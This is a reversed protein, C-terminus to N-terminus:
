FNSDNKRGFEREKDFMTLLESEIVSLINLAESYNEQNVATIIMMMERHYQIAPGGLLMGVVYIQDYVIQLIASGSMGAVSSNSIAIIKSNEDIAKGKSEM